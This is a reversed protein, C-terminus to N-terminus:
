LIGEAMFLDIVGAIGNVKGRAYAYQEIAGPTGKEMYAIKLEREYEQADKLMIVLTNNIEMQRSDM